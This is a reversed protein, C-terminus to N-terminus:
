LGSWTESGREFCFRELVLGPMVVMTLTYGLSGVMDNLGKGM